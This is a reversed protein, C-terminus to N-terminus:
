GTRIEMRSRGPSVKKVSVWTGLREALGDVHSIVGVTRGEARLSELTSLALALTDSDLTGFGEDIFISEVRTRTAALEALGLALALSVLFTEGGSLSTLPRVQEAMHLDVVQLEMEVNPVRQLQYRPNLSALQVNSQDLLRDLTLSQAFQRFVTGTASGILKNLVRWRDAVELQADKRPRLVAARAGREDDQLIVARAGTWADDAARQAAEASPLAALVTPRDDAPADIAAHDAAARARETARTIAESVARDAGSLRARAEERWRRDRVLRARLAPEDLGLEVLAREVTARTGALEADRRAQEARAATAGARTETARAALREAHARADDAARRSDAVASAHAAEVADATAGELLAARVREAEDKTAVATEAAGAARAAAEAQGTATAASTARQVELAARNTTGEAREARKGQWDTVEKACADRFAAPDSTARIRWKDDQPFAPAAAELATAARRDAEDRVRVNETVARASEDRARTAGDAASVADAARAACAQAAHMAALLAKGLRDAEREEAALRVLEAQVTSLAGALADALAGTADDEPLDEPAPTVRAASWAPAIAARRADKDAVRARGRAAEATDAAAKTGAAAEVSGLRGVEAELAAVRGATDEVLGALPSGDAWPHDIAGCLPCPAGEVLSARHGTLDLAAQVRRLGDRAETLRAGEELRARGAVIRAADAEGAAAEAAHVGALEAHREQGLRSWTALLEACRVLGDRHAEQGLRRLPRDGGANAVDLLAVAARAADTQARAAEAEIRLADCTTLARAHAQAAREAEGRLAASGALAQARRTGEEALVGLHVQLEGWAAAVTATAAHRVLWQDLEALRADAATLAADRTQLAERAVRALDAAQRAELAAAEARRRAEVVRVDAARAEQLLPGAAIRAGEADIVTRAARESRGRAEEADTAALGAAQEGEDAAKAAISAHGVAVDLAEVAGRAPEAAEAAALEARAETLADRAHEAAGQEVLAAAVGEALAGAAAHWALAAKLRAVDAEAASRAAAAGQATAELAARAEAEAPEVEALRAKVEELVKQEAAAREWALKSLDGYITTGTMQELLSAREAPKAKIFAAFEGQALLVARKFQDFDLGLEAEIAALTETRTGGVRAGGIEEFTLDASQIKGESRSGARWVSWRARWRRGARGLFDVEAYGETAGDRLLNRPDNAPIGRMTGDARGVEVGGQGGLRPTRNYLAVCMADLITSKGAGTPGAIAFLGAAGLPGDVLDLEFAGELSALNKGRIALIRM